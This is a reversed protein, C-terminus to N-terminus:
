SPFQRIDEGLDNEYVIWFVTEVEEVMVVAGVQSGMM